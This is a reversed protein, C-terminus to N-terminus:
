LTIMCDNIQAIQLYCCLTLITEGKEHDSKQPYLVLLMAVARFYVLKQQKKQLYITLPMENTRNRLHPRRRRGRRRGM